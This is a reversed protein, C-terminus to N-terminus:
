DFVCHQFMIFLVIGVVSSIVILLLSAVSAGVPIVVIFCCMHLVYTNCIYHIDIYHINIGIYIHMDLYNYIIHTSGFIYPCVLLM